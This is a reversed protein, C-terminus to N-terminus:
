ARFLYALANGVWIDIAKDLLNSDASAKGLEAYASSLAKSLSELMQEQSQGSAKGRRSWQALFLNYHAIYCYPDMETARILQTTATEWDGRQLALVGLNM